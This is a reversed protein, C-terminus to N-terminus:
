DWCEYSEYIRMSISFFIKYISPMEYTKEKKNLIMIFKWVFNDSVM